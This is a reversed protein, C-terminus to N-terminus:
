LNEINQVLSNTTDRAGELDRATDRATKWNGSQIM